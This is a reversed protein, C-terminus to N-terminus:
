PHNATQPFDTEPATRKKDVPRDYRLNSIRKERKLRLSKRWVLYQTTGAMAAIDRFADLRERWPLCEAAEIWLLQSRTWDPKDLPRM